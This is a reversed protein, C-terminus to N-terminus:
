PVFLDLYPPTHSAELNLLFRKVELGGGYGALKGNSGIVRHCPVIISIANAHNANAVARVAKRSNMRFAEEAYSITEGYRIYTLEEWARRQFETGCLLIPLEFEYRKGEFYENLQRKVSDILANRGKIKRANLYREVREQCTDKDDTRVWKCLCLCDKFTGILLEGCPSHYTQTIIIGTEM